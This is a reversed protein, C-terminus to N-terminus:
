EVVDIYQALYERLAENCVYVYTGKISRNMLIRYTRKVQDLLEEDTLVTQTAIQRKNRNKAGTDYYDKKSFIIKKAIPDYQLDNGIIVGCYNLDYGQITYISGVEETSKQSGVWDVLKSNWRLKVDDIVIDHATKNAKSRWPWAFGAVLRSLGVEKEKHQIAQTFSSFDTFLKFEFNTFTQKQTPPQSSLIDSLYNIYLEGGQSRMQSKLLRYRPTYKALDEEPINNPRIRQDGYVIVINKARANIWELETHSENDDFLEKNIKAVQHSTYISKNDIKLLHAEDVFVIDYFINKQGFEIPSLVDIKSLNSIKKFTKTISGKLSTNPVVVAISKDRLRDRAPSQFFIGFDDGDLDEDSPEFDQIDRILKILYTLVITKGTGENGGIVTFTKTSYKFAEDLDVLVEMVVNLQDESLRKYPSYKFLGSNEIAQISNQAVGISRLQEWIKLFEDRYKERDFYDNDVQGANRNKITYKGDGSFWQILHSELDLTASKNFTDDFIVSFRELEQKDNTDIHQLMRNKLSTTEGVYLKEDNYIQYVVPWNVEKEDVLLGINTKDFIYNKISFNSM